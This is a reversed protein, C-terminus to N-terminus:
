LNVCPQCDTSSWEPSAKRGQAGGNNNRGAAVAGLVLDAQGRALVLSLRQGWHEGFVMASWHYLDASSQEGATEVLEQLFDV